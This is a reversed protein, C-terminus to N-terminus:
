AAAEGATGVLHVFLDELDDMGHAAKLEAVTGEAVIRGDHIIGLRDCLKEAETMVHTSFIM